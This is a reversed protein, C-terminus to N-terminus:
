AALEAASAAAIARRRGGVRRVRRRAAPRFVPEPRLLGDAADEIRHRPVGIDDLIHDDLAQLTRITRRRRWARAPDIRAAAAARALLAGIGAAARRTLFATAKAREARARSRYTAYPDARDIM